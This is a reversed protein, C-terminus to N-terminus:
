FRLLLPTRHGQIKDMQAPDNSKAVNRHSMAKRSTATSCETVRRQGWRCFKRETEFDKRLPEASPNGRLRVAEPLKQVLAMCKAEAHPELPTPSQTLELSSHPSLLGFVERPSANTQEKNELIFGFRRHGHIVSYMAGFSGLHVTAM